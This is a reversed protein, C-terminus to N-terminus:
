PRTILKSSYSLRTKTDTMKLYYMGSPPPNTLEFQVNNANNVTVNRNFVKQGALNNIELLYNGSLNRDFQMSVQREVPNPYIIFGAAVNENMHVSRIPSFTVKGGADTQKIRFYLKGSVGPTYEFQQQTTITKPAPQGISSFNIGDTSSEIEYLSGPTEDETIWRLLISKDKKLASFNKIGTALLASECWYYVLRFGGWTNTRVTVSYNTGDFVPIAGGSINYIFEVDGTGSYYDGLNSTSNRQKAVKNYVTDPGYTISDGPTGYIQLSDPGYVVNILDNITISPSVPNPGKVSTTLTLQFSPEHGSAADLNRAGTQAEISLTDYLTVCNLTGLGVPFKPFSIISTSAPTSALQFRHELVNPAVGGSCPCQGYSKPPIYAVVLFLLFYPLTHLYNKM